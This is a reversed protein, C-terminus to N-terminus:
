LAFVCEVVVARQEVGLMRRVKTPADVSESLDEGVPVDVFHEKHVDCKDSFRISFKCIADFGQVFADLRPSDQADLADLVRCRRRRQRSARDFLLIDVDRDHGQIARAPVDSKSRM